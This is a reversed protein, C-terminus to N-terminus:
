KDELYGPCKLPRDEPNCSFMDDYSYYPFIQQSGNKCFWDEYYKNNGSFGHNVNILNKCGYCTM